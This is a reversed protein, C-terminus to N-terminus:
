SFIIKAKMWFINNGYYNYIISKNKHQKQEERWQKNGEDIVM